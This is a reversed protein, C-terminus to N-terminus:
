KKGLLKELYKEKDKGLMKNTLRIMDGIALTKFFEKILGGEVIEGSPESGEVNQYAESNIEDVDQVVEEPVEVDEADSAAIEYVSDGVTVQLGGDLTESVGVSLDKLEDIQSLLDLVAAPTFVVQDM